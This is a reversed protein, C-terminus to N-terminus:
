CRNFIRTMIGLITSILIMSLCTIGGLYHIYLIWGSEHIAITNTSSVIGTTLLIPLTTALTYICAFMGALAHIIPPYRRYSYLAMGPGWIAAMLGTHYDFTSGFALSDDQHEKNM